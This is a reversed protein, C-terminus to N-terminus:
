SPPVIARLLRAGGIIARSKEKDRKRKPFGTVVKGSFASL